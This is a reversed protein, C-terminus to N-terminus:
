AMPPLPPVIGATVIRTQEQDHNMAHTFAQREVNIKTMELIGIIEPLSIEKSKLAAAVSVSIATHLKKANM